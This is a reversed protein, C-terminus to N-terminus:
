SQEAPAKPTPAILAAIGAAQGRLTRDPPEAAEAFAAELRRQLDALVEGAGVPDHAHLLVLGSGAAVADDIIATKSRGTKEALVAVLEYTGPTIRIVKEAAM